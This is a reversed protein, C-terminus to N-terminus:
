PALRLTRLIEFGVSGELEGPLAETSVGAVLTGADDRVAVFILDRDNPAPVDPLTLTGRIATGYGWGDWKAPTRETGSVGNVGLQGQTALSYVDVDEDTAGKETTITVAAVARKQAPDQVFLQVVKESVENRTVDFGAPVDISIGDSIYPTAGEISALPTITLAEGTPANGPSTTPADGTEAGGGCGALLLVAALSATLITSKMTRMSDVKEM